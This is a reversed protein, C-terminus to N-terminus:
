DYPMVKKRQVPKPASPDIPEFRFGKDGDIPHDHLVYDLVIDRPISDFAKCCLLGDIYGIYNKCKGCQPTHPMPNDWWRADSYPKKEM